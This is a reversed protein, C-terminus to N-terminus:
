ALNAFPKKGYLKEFDAILEKELYVPNEDKCPLWYVRFDESFKHQWLYRGGRHGVKKSNGFRLLAIIRKKLTATSVKRNIYAGGAKGIYLIDADEVWNMWLDEVPVNPNKGQFYGGSGTPLFLGEPRMYPYIVFYIGKSDTLKSNVDKPNSKYQRLTTTDVIKHLYSHTSGSFYSKFSMM